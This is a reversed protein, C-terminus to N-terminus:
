WKLYLNLHRYSLNGGLGILWYIEKEQALQICTLGNTQQIQCQYYAESGAPMFCHPDLSQAINICRSKGETECPWLLTSPSM